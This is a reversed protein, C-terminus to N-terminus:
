RIMMQGSPVSSVSKKEDYILPTSHAVPSIPHHAELGELMRGM